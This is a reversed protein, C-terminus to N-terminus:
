LGEDFFLTYRFSNISKCEYKFIFFYCLVITKGVLDDVTFLFLRRSQVISFLYITFFFLFSSVLFFAKVIIIEIFTLPFM